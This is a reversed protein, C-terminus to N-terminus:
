VLRWEGSTLLPEAKKFKIEIVEKGNTIKIKENRGIKQTTKNINQSGSNTTSIALAKKHVNEVDRMVNSNQSNSTGNNAFQTSELLNVVRMAYAVEMDKFLRLGEKKYEILPDRQGYARLNVSQRTYDMLELHDVWLTDIAQLLIARVTNHYAEEGLEEKKREALIPLKEHIEHVRSLKIIEKDLDSDKGLLVNNRIEYITQRQRNLIDD